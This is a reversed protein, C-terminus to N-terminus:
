ARGLERDCLALTRAVVADMDFYRYEALRGCFLVNEEADAWTKYRQYLASNKEDNVPYYPDDGRKWERSYERSIITHPLANGEADRGFEFWKHEIVRTYPTERDTYNVVANGQYNDM